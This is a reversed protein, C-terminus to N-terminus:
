SRPAPSRAEARRLWWLLAGFPVLSLAFFIPGGQHHIASNIMHPGIHVCLLGITLIRFGNRLLALPVVIVALLVRRWSARLFLKGAVLSTIFLALSSHIGSCEPAVLLSIRPLQFLLDTRFNPTGSLNFLLHSVEASGHQLFVEIGKTLATPMPFAFLLLGLPFAVARVGRTGVLAFGAAALLLVYAGVRAALRDEVSWGRSGIVGLSWFVLCGALGALLLAALWNSRVPTPLDPRALWAFYGAVVPMLLTHSYLDSALAFRVLEYFVLGFPLALLGAAWAYRRWQPHAAAAPAPAPSSAAGAPLAPRSETLGSNL